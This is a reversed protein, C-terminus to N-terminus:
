RGGKTVGGKARTKGKDDRKHSADPRDHSALIRKDFRDLFAQGLRARSSELESRILASRQGEAPGTLHSERGKELLGAARENAQRESETCASLWRDRPGGLQKVAHARIDNIEQPTLAPVAARDHGFEKGLQRCERAIQRAADHFAAGRESDGRLHRLCQDKSAELQERSRRWADAKFVRKALEKFGGHVGLQKLTLATDRGAVDKAPLRIEEPQKVVETYAAESRHAKVEAKLQVASYKEELRLVYERDGTVRADHVAQGHEIEFVRSLLQPDRAREACNSLERLEDPTYRGSPPPLNLAERAALERGLREELSRAEGEVEKLHSPLRDREVAIESQLREKVENLEKVDRGNNRYDDIKRETETLSVHQAPSVWYQPAAKFDAEEVRLAAVRARALELKVVLQDAEDDPLAKVAIEPEPRQPPPPAAQQKAAERQRIEERVKDTAVADRSKKSEATRPADDHFEPEEVERRIPEEEVKHVTQSRAVEKTIRERLRVPVYRSVFRLYSKDDEELRCPPEVAGREHLSSRHREAEEHAAAYERAAETIQAKAERQEKSSRSEGARQEAFALRAEAVLERGFSRSAEEVSPAAVEVTRVEAARDHGRERQEPADGTANREVKTTSKATPPADFRFGLQGAQAARPQEFQLVRQEDPRATTPREPRAAKEARSREIEREYVRLERAESITIVEAPMQSKIESRGESRRSEAADLRGRLREAEGRAAAVEEDRAGTAELYRLKAEAVRTQAQIRGCWRDDWPQFTLGTDKHDGHRDPKPPLPQGEDRAKKAQEKWALTEAKLEMHRDLIDKDELREACIRMWSEDLHFYKQGLDIRSGDLQRTHVYLHAHTHETDRHIAVFAPSKPFNEGLFANVLAKMERNSVEPGLSLIIRFHTPGGKLEELDALVSFHAIGRERKEEVSFDFGGQEAPKMGMDSPTLTPAPLNELAVQLPDGKAVGYSDGTVYAPANWTWVPDDDERGAVTRSDRSEVELIQDLSPRGSAVADERGPVPPREEGEM